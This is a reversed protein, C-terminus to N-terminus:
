ESFASLVNKVAKMKVLNLIWKCLYLNRLTNLRWSGIHTAPIALMCINEPRFDFYFCLTSVTMCTKWDLKVYCPWEATWSRCRDFGFRASRVWQSVAWTNLCGKSSVRIHKRVQQLMSCLPVNYRIKCCKVVSEAFAGNLLLYSPNLWPKLM